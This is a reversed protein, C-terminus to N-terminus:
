NRLGAAPRRTQPDAPRRTQPDAPRRTQPDAPRRTQPDAPRRTQPDAPAPRRTQSGCVRLGAFGCVRLGSKFGGNSRFGAIYITYGAFGCVRLGAFGCFNASSKQPNFIQQCHIRHFIQTFNLPIHAIHFIKSFKWNQRGAVGFGSLKVRTKQQTPWQKSFKEM